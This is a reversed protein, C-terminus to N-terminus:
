GSGGERISRLTISSDTLRIRHRFADSIVDIPQGAANTADIPLESYVELTEGIAQTRLTVTNDATLEFATARAAPVLKEALGVLTLAGFTPPVVFYALGGPELRATMQDAFRDAIGDWVRLPWRHRDIELTQRHDTTNIALIYEWRIGGARHEARYIEIPKGLTMADPAPPQDPQLLTGDQTIMAQVLQANTSSPGDGIGVPGCSLARLIAEERADEGGIEPDFYTLFLDHFPLLGLTHLIHGMLLNQRRMQRSPTEDNWFGPHGRRELTELAPRQAFLYDIASRASIINPEATSALVMGMTHMCLIVDIGTEAFAAAMGHFWADAAEPLNRLAATGHQQTRLWDHWATTAGQRQLEDAVVRYYDPTAGDTSYANDADLASLHLVCPLGADKGPGAAYKTADPTFEIAHGIERYPYWLDIGVYEIPLHQERLGSVVAALSPGNLARIPETYYGGYANWWGLSSTLVREQPSPRTKHHRRLLADGLNTLAESPDKGAAFLTEIQTGAELADVSGHLSRAIGESTRILMSTLWQSAPAVAVAVSDDFLVVPCFALGPVEDVADVVVAEPWYGGIPDGSSEGLGYTALLVRLEPEVSFGPLAMGSAEFTDGTALGAVPKHLAVSLCGIPGGMTLRSEGVENGQYRLRQRLGSPNEGREEISEWAPNVDTGSTLRIGLRRLVCRNNVILSVGSDEVVWRCKM